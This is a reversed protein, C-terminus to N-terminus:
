VIFEKSPQHVGESLHSRIQFISIMISIVAGIRKSRIGQVQIVKRSNKAQSWGVISLFTTRLGSEIGQPNHNCIRKYEWTASSVLFSEPAEKIFANFLAEGKHGLWGRLRWGSSVGDDKPTPNWYVRKLLICANLSYYWWLHYCQVMFTGLIELVWTQPSMKSGQIQASTGLLRASLYSRRHHWKFNPVSIQTIWIIQIAM